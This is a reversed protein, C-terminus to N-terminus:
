EVGAVNMRITYISKSATIFLEKKDKGGFCSNSTWKEPVAIHERKNGSSDYITVGDGTAYLNGQADLTLGDSGEAVFLQKHQLTGNPQIDYKYIKSDGIDAIFLHKGDPTGVIGNPKKLTQEIAILNKKGAPLYYVFEGKLVAQKRKWYPRQYYPDTLYVGGHADVWLDNPGNLRRRKPAKYLVKKHGQSDIRWVENKADACAIIFGAHDIFLGNSRGTGHMFRALTGDTKYQWIVDNLQDTFFINGQKDVAPGEAFQFQNSIRQLTAGNAILGTDAHTTSVVTNTPPLYFVVNAYVGLLGVVFVYATKFFNAM